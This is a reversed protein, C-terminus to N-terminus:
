GIWDFRTQPNRIDQRMIVDLGAFNGSAVFLLGSNMTMPDLSVTSSFAM